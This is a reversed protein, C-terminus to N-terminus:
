SRSEAGFPRSGMPNIHKSSSDPADLGEDDSEDTDDQLKRKGKKQSAKQKQWQLTAEQVAAVRESALASRKAASASKLAAYGNAGYSAAATVIMAVGTGFALDYQLQSLSGSASQAADDVTRAALKRVSDLPATIEEAPRKIQPSVINATNGSRV